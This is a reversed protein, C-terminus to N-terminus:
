ANPVLDLMAPLALAAIALWAGAIMAPGFAIRTRRHARRRALLIMAQAGGIVFAAVTAILLGDWAMWGLYLGLLGALKVDGGGISTPSAFRMAFYAVYLIALGALARTLRGADSALLAAVILLAVGVGYSPLVIRNPLRHTGIDIVTLMVSVVALYAFALVAVSASAADLASM